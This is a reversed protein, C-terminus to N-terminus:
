VKTTSFGLKAEAQVNAMSYDGKVKTISTMISSDEQEGTAAIRGKAVLSDVQRVLFGCIWEKGTGALQASVEYESWIAAAGVLKLKGQGSVQLFARSKM